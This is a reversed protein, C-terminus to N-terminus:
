ALYRGFGRSRAATGDKGVVIGETGDRTVSIWTDM